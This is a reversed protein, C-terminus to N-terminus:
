SLFVAKKIEAGNCRIRAAGDHSGTQYARNAAECYLALVSTCFGGAPLCNGYQRRVPRSKLESM